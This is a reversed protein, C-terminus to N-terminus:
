ARPEDELLILEAPGDLLDKAVLAFAQMHPTAMHARLASMSAWRELVTFADQQGLVAHLDYGRNGEETRVKAALDPWLGLLESGRGPQTRLRAIVRVARNEGM